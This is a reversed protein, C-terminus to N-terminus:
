LKQADRMAKMELREANIKNMTEEQRRVAEPDRELKQETGQHSQQMFKALETEDMKEMMAVDERSWTQKLEHQLKFKRLVKFMLEPTLVPEPLTFAADHWAIVM